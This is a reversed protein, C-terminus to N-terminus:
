FNFMFTLLFDLSQNKHCGKSKIMSFIHSLANRVANVNNANKVHIYLGKESRLLRKWGSKLKSGKNMTCEIWMDPPLASYPNTTMSQAFIHPMYVSYERPLTKMNLWYVPLWRGYNTSDYIMYWPMLMRLSELYCKWNHTRISDINQFLVEIMQM